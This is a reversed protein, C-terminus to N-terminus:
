NGLTFHGVQLPPASYFSGFVLWYIPYLALFTVLAAMSILVVNGASVNYRRFLAPWRAVDVAQSPAAV